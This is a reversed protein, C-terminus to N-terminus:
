PCSACELRKGFSNNKAQMKIAKDGYLTSGELVDLKMRKFGELDHLSGQSLFFEVPWGKATVLLHM